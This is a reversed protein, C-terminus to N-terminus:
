LRKGKEVTFLEHFTTGLYGTTAQINAQLNILLREKPIGLTQHMYDTIVEMHKPNEEPGLSGISTIQIFGCPDNSGGLTMKVGPNVTAVCYSQRKGLNKSLLSTCTGLFDEPIKSAPLNTDLSLRPM